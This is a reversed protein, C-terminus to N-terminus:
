ESFRQLGPRLPPRLTSVSKTRDPQRATVDFEEYRLGGLDEVITPNWLLLYSSAPARPYDPDVAYGVVTEVHAHSGWIVLYGLDIESKILDFTFNGYRELDYGLRELVDRVNAGALCKSEEDRPKPIKLCEPHFGGAKKKTYLEYIDAQTYRKFNPMAREFFNRFAAATAAWCWGETQMIGPYFWDELVSNSVFKHFLKNGHHPQTRVLRGLKDGQYQFVFDMNKQNPGIILSQETLSPNQINPYQKRPLPKPPTNMDLMLREDDFDGIKQWASIGSDTVKCFWISYSPLNWYWHMERGSLVFIQTGELYYSETDLVVFQQLTVERKASLDLGDPVKAFYPNKNQLKLDLLDFTQILQTNPTFTNHEYTLFHLVERGTNDPYKQYCWAYVYDVDGKFKIPIWEQSRNSFTEMIDTLNYYYVEPGDNIFLFPYINWRILMLNDEPPAAKVSKKKERIIQPNGVGIRMDLNLLRVEGSLSSFAVWKDQGGTPTKFYLPLVTNLGEMIEFKTYDAKMQDIRLFAALTRGNSIVAYAEQKKDKSTFYEYMMFCTVTKITNDWKYSNTPKTKSNMKLPNDYVELVQGNARILRTGCSAWLPPEASIIVDPRTSKEINDKRWIGYYNESGIRAPSQYWDDDFVKHDPFNSDFVQVEGRPLTEVWYDNM